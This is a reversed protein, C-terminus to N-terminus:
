AAWTTGADRHSLALTVDSVGPRDRGSLDALTWAVRVVRDAGRASVDGRSIARELPQAADADLGFERRVV